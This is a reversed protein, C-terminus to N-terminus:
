LEISNFEKNLEKLYEHERTHCSFMLIQIDLDSSYQYLHKISEKLRINDYNVFCDDLLLPYNSQVLFRTIGLRVALYIQDKTGTSYYKFNTYKSLENDYLEINGDDKVLLKTYKNNTLDKLSDSIIDHFDNSVSNKIDKSLKEITYKAHELVERKFKLNEINEKVTEIDHEIDEITRYKEIIASIKTLNEAKIEKLKLLSHNNSDVKNDYDLLATKDYEIGLNYDYMDLLEQKTRNGLLTSINSKIVNMSNTSDINDKIINIANNVNDDTIIDIGTIALLSEKLQEITINFTKYKTDFLSIESNFNEVKAKLTAISSNIEKINNDINSLNNEYSDLLSKDYESPLTNNYKSRYYEIDHSNLKSKIYSELEISEINISDIKSTCQSISSDTIEKSNIVQKVINKLDEELAALKSTHSTILKNSIDINRQYEDLLGASKNSGYAKDYLQNEVRCDNKALLKSNQSSLDSITYELKDIKSQLENKSNNYAANNKMYIIIPIILFFLILLIANPKQLRSLDNTLKRQERDSTDILEKNEIYKNYDAILDVDKETSVSQLKITTEELKSQETSLTLKINNYDNYKINLESSSINIKSKNDRLKDLETQKDTITDILVKVDQNDKILKANVLQKRKENKDDLLKTGESLELSLKSLQAKKKEIDSKNTQYNIYDKYMSNLESETTNIEISNSQLKSLNDEMTALEDLVKKTDSNSKIKLQTSLYTNNDEITKIQSLLNDNDLQYRVVKDFEVISNEKEDELESLKNQEINIPSVKTRDTGVDSKISDDINNIASDISIEESNSTDINVICNRILEAVDKNDYSFTQSLAVANKYTSRNLGLFEPLNYTGNSFTPLDKTCVNNFEDRVELNGKKENFDREITYIKNNHVIKMRGIYKKNGKELPKYKSESVDYRSNKRGTENEFNFIIAEIFSHITSKGAENQGNILNFNESFSLTKNSFKGFSILELELIKM